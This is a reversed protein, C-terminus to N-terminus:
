QFTADCIKEKELRVQRKQLPLQEVTGPCGLLGWGLVQGLMLVDKQAGGHSGGRVRWLQQHLGRFDAGFSVARGPSFMVSMEALLNLNHGRNWGSREEESTFLVPEMLTRRHGKFGCRFSDAGDAGSRSVARGVRQRQAGLKVRGRWRQLM